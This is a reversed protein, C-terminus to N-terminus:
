EQNEQNTHKDLANTKGELQADWCKTCIKTTIMDVDAQPLHPAIQSLSINGKLWDEYIPTDLHVKQTKGCCVCKIKM